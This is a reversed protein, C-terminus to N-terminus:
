AISCVTSQNKDFVLKLSHVNLKKWEQNLKVTDRAYQSDVAIVIGGMLLGLEYKRIQSEDIHCDILTQTLNDTLRRPKKLYHSLHGIVILGLDEIILHNELVTLATYIGNFEKIALDENFSSQVSYIKKFEHLYERKAYDLMLISIESQTYGCSLATQYAQEAILFNRFLGSIMDCHHYAHKAHIYHM